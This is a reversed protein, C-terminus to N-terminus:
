IAKLSLRAGLSIFDAIKFNKNSNQGIIINRM